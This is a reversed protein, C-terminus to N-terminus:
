DEDDLSDLNEVIMEVAEDSLAVERLMMAAEDATIANYDSERPVIMLGAMDLTGPSVVRQTAGEVYYCSPRHEARPFVMTVFGEGLVFFTIVNMRPEDEGEVLPM